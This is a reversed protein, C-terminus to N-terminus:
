IDGKVITNSSSIEKNKNRNLKKFILDKFLLSFASIYIIVSIIINIVESSFEPQMLEGGVQIYSIFFASFIIGIPSSQGLLAVPIGSFGMAQLAKPMAYTAGGNLYYLGGGIGAFLGAITMSLIINRKENIGAYKSADKNFGCAKLEYGFTTKNLIIHIIIAIIIAIIIGISVTRNNFLENLGLKPIIASKNAVDLNATRDATSGYFDGLMKPQNSIILNVLYLGIWNFMISTIVENVNLFAKFLGPIAGWIAGGISAAILCIWWPYKLVLGLYLAFFAGMLYQGSAGINFLGTKFAFGVALGTMILPMAKYLVDGVRSISKVGSFLLNSLGFLSDEFSLILLLIFGFTIGVLISSLSALVSIFSPKNKLNKFWLTIRKKM